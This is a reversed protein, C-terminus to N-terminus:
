YVSARSSFFTLDLLALIIKSDSNPSIARDFSLFGSAQAHTEALLGVRRRFSVITPRDLKRACRPRSVRLTSGVCEYFDGASYGGGYM